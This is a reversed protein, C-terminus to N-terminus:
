WGIGFDDDAGQKVKKYEEELEEKPEESIDITEFKNSETGRDKFYTITGVSPDIVNLSTVYPTCYDRFSYDM